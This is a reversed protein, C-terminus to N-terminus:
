CKCELLHLKQYIKKCGKEEKKRAREIGEAEGCGWGVERPGGERLGRPGLNLGMVPGRHYSM